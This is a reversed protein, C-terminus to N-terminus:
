SGRFRSVSFDKEDASGSAQPASKVPALTPVSCNGLATGSRCNNLTEWAGGESAFASSCSEQLSGIPSSARTPDSGGDSSGSDVVMTPPVPVRSSRLVTASARQEVMKEPVPLLRYQVVVIATPCHFPPRAM